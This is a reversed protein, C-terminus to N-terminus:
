GGSVASFCNFEKRQFKTAAANDAIFIRKQNRVQANVDRVGDTHELWLVIETGGTIKINNVISPITVEFELLGPKHHYSDTKLETMPASIIVKTEFGM